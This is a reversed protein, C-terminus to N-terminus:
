EGAPFSIAALSTSYYANPGESQIDGNPYIYVGAPYDAASSFAGLELEHKPRAGNPLVAMVPPPNENKSVAGAGALYGVGNIVAYSPAGLGATFRHWGNRLKLSHWTIKPGAPHHTTM